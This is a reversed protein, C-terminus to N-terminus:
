TGRSLIRRGPTYAFREILEGCYAEIIQVDETTLRELYPVNVNQNIPYWKDKDRSGFPMKDGEAPLMSQMFDLDVFGCLTKLNTYPDQLFDEFRYVQFNDLHEGDRLAFTYMNSYHECALRLHAIYDVNGHGYRDRYKIVERKCAAYPNRIILAFKPDQDILMENIFPVKLTFSQSKDVFRARDLDKAHALISKRIIRELDKGLKPSADKETLRYEPLFEETAYLWSREYGFVAHEAMSPNVNSYGPSRLSFEEPIDEQINWHANHIEDKFTWKESNGCIYVVSPHRSIMRRIFTLGSGQTGLLFIPKNIPITDINHFLRRVNYTYRLEQIRRAAYESAKIPNLLAKWIRRIKM